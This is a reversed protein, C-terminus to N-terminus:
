RGAGPNADLGFGDAAPPIAPGAAAAPLPDRPSRSVDNPPTRPAAVVAPPTATTLGAPAGAMEADPAIRLPDASKVRYARSMQVLLANAAEVTKGDAEKLAQEYLAAIWDMDEPTANDRALALMALGYAPSKKVDKGRWFSEGLLAQAPPYLKKAAHDLWNMAMKPNKDVGEGRMYMQALEFQAAQDKFYSAAHQMLRAARFPDAAIGASSVGKRYFNATERFAEAVHRASPHSPDLDAYRNAIFEYHQFAKAEDVPVGEGTAYMRAARLRAVFLGKEAAQEFLSLADRNRGERLAREGDQYAQLAPSPAYDGKGGAGATLLLLAIAALFAKAFM